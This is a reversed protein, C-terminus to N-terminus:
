KYNLNILKFKKNKTLLVVFKDFKVILSPTVILTDLTVHIGEVIWIVDDVNEVIGIIDDVDEVVL